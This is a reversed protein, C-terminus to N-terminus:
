KGGLLLQGLFAASQVPASPFKNNKLALGLATARSAPSNIATNLGRGVSAAVPLSATEGIARWPDSLLNRFQSRESTGSNRQGKLFAAGARAITGLNGANAPDGYENVVSNLVAQGPTVDGTAAKQIAPEVTKLARYQQRATQLAVSDPGTIQRDFAKDLIGRLNQGFAAVTPDSNDSLGQLLGGRQRMQQYNTGPLGNTVDSLIKNSTAALRNVDAPDLAVASNALNNQLGAIDAHFQPDATISNRSTIADIQGGIRSRANSLVDGSLNSTNEGFTNSLLRNFTAQQDENSISAIPNTKGRIAWQSPVDALVSDGQRIFNSNNYQGPRLQGGLAEYDQVLDATGPAVRSTLLGAGGKLASGALSPSGALLGGAFRAIPTPIGLRPAAEGAAESGAAPLASRLLVRGLRNATGAEGGLAAPAFEGLTQAYKGATTQPEHYGGILGGVTNDISQTDPSYASAAGIFPLSGLVSQATAAGSKGGLYSGVAQGADRLDGGLGGLSTVGKLVGTAGSKLVDAATSQWDPPADPSATSNPVWVTQTGQAQWRGGHSSPAPQSHAQLASQFMADTPDGSPAPTSAGHTAIASQFMADTPDAPAAPAPAVSGASDSSPLSGSSVFNNGSMASSQPTVVPDRGYKARYLALVDPDAALTYDSM